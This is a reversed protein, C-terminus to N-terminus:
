DQRDGRFTRRWVIHLEKLSVSYLRRLLDMVDPRIILDSGVCEIPEADSFSSNLVRWTRLVIAPTGARDSWILPEGYEAPELRAYIRLALPPILVFADGLWDTTRNLRVVPGPQGTRFINLTVEQRWWDEVNGDEFPFAGPPVTEGLPVAVTGAFLTVYETPRSYPHDRDAVYQREVIAVRTWGSFAPDDDSLISLDFLGDNLSAPKPWAPRASRSAAMGLHLTTNPLVVEVLSDEAEPTWQGTAWLKERIGNLVEHLAAQFLESEWLLVPTSPFADGNRGFSLYFREKAREKHEGVGDLIANLRRAVLDPLEPWFPILRDLTKGM